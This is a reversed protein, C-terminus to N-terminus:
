RNQRVIPALDRKLEAVNAYKGDEVNETFRNLADAAMTM